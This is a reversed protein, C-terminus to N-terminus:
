GFRNSLRGSQRAQQGFRSSFRNAQRERLSAFRRSFRTSDTITVQASGTGDAFPTLGTALDVGEATVTNTQKDGADGFFDGSFTCTYTEDGPTGFEGNSGSLDCTGQGDLDGYVNDELSELTCGAAGFDCDSVEVTYSFKGGPEAKSLRNPTVTVTVALASPLVGFVLAVITTTMVSVRRKAPRAAVGQSAQPQQQSMIDAETM